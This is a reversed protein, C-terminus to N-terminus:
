VVDVRAAEPPVAGRVQVSDDPESGSPRLREVAPTMLPVSFADAVVCVKVTLTVSLLPTAAVFDKVIVTV